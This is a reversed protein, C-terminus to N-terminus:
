LRKELNGIVNLDENVIIFAKPDVELISKKLNNIEYKSIVTYLINTSSDTYGGIGKWCTVGRKLDYMILNQLSDVKSFIM